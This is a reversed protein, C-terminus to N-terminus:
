RASPPRRMRRRHAAVGHVVSSADRGVMRAIEPYSYCREPHERILCWLEHRASAVAGSRGRGCLEAPTVGRRACVDDLLDLLGRTKLQALVATPSPTKM